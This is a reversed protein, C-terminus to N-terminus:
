SALDVRQRDATTLKICCFSACRDRDRDRDRHRCAESTPRCSRDDLVINREAKREDCDAEKNPPM